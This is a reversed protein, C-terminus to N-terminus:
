CPMPAPPAWLLLTWRDRGWSTRGHDCAACCARGCWLRRQPQCRTRTSNKLAQSLKPEIAGGTQQPRTQPGVSVRWALESGGGGVTETEAVLGPATCPVQLPHRRVLSCRHLAFAQWPTALTQELTEPRGEQHRVHALWRSAPRWVGRVTTAHQMWSVLPTPPPPSLQPQTPIDITHNSNSRCRPNHHPFHHPTHTHNRTPVRHQLRAQFRCPTIHCLTELLQNTGV